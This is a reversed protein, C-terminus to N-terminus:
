TQWADLQEQRPTFSRVEIGLPKAPAALRNHDLMWQVLAAAVDGGADAVLQQVTAAPFGAGGYGLEAEQERGTPPIPTGDSKTLRANRGFRITFALHGGVRAAEDVVKMIPKSGSKVAQQRVRATRGQAYTTKRRVKAVRGAANKRREPAPVEVAEGQRARVLAALSSELNDGPKKGRAIQSILSDNRSLAAGIARNSMGLGRLQIILDRSSM